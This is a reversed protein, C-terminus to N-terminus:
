FFRVQFCIQRIMKVFNHKKKVTLKEKLDIRIEM